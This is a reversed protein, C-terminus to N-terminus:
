GRRTAVCCVVSKEVFSSINEPFILFFDSDNCRNANQHARRDADVCGPPFRRKEPSDASKTRRLFRCKSRAYNNRRFNVSPVFAPVPSQVFPSFPLPLLILSLVLYLSVSAVTGANRGDPSRHPPATGITNTCIEPVAGATETMQETRNSVVERVTPRDVPSRSAGCM